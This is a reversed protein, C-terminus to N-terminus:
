EYNKVERKKRAYNPDDSKIHLKPRKYSLGLDGMIRQVHSKSIEFGSEKTIEKAIDRV